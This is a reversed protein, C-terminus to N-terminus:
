SELMSMAKALSKHMRGFAAALAGIEDNGTAPFGAVDLNGLSVQDALAALQTVPKIVIYPLMLNLAIFILVFVGTLSLMFVRFAQNARAVPVAPPISVVQAGVVENLQWGFGNATGYYDIMTQPAAEVTSHCRLCAQDKVQIPRALYLARGTPTDREGIVETAAQGNRCQHVIDAEWDTARDRPNTPNLTAEKYSYDTFTARLKNFMETASYAPVSQPLFKYRMQTELLPAVQTNTYARQALAAEMMIRAHQLIEERANRQLLNYSIAGAVGLGVLFVALFVLNFKVILKM